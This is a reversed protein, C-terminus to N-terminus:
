RGAVTIHAQMIHTTKPALTVTNAGANVTEVCVMEHWEDPGMDPLEKWPNFVVTTNSNQKEITITRKGLVDHIACTATTNPYVRDTAGTFVLPANAAPKARFNDIKDIYSTPELGTVSTEHIDAVAFYTHLAEEFVLPTEADNAVALKMTLTRGITLEFAVRFHDFGMQRSLESPGLTFALHLDDGALAAFSPTWEQIRAFGHSPGPKGEFRDKKSDTAFWPFAIPVGGRIPKGQVFDSKRSLFLVPKQGAPQWHTLHAGQLYVTASAVPTTAVARILGSREEFRLVGPIEFHDNLQQLEMDIYTYRKCALLDRRRRLAICLEIEV